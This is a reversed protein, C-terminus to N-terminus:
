PTTPHKQKTGGGKKRALRSSGTRSKKLKPARKGARFAVTLMSSGGSAVGRVAKESM